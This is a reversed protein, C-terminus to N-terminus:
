LKLLQLLYQLVRDVYRYKYLWPHASEHLILKYVTASIEVDDEGKLLWEM